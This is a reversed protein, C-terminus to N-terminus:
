SCPAGATRRILYAIKSYSAEEPREVGHVDRRVTRIQALFECGELFSSPPRRALDRPPRRGTACVYAAALHHSRRLRYGEPLNLFMPLRKGVHPGDTIVFTVAWLKRKHWTRRKASFFGVHYEGEPLLIEDLDEALSEGFEVDDRKV